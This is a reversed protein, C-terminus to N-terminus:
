DSVLEARPEGHLVATFSRITAKRRNKPFNAMVHATPSNFQYGLTILKCPAICQKLWTCIYTYQSVQSKTAVQVQTCTQPTFWEVVVNNGDNHTICPSAHIHM